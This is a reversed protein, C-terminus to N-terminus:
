KNVYFIKVIGTFMSRDVETSVQVSGGATVFCSISYNSAPSASGLQYTTGANSTNRAIGEIRIIEIDNMTLGSAVTKTTANPLAGFDITKCYVTKGNLKENTAVVQGAVYNVSTDINNIATQMTAVQMELAAVRETLAAVDDYITQIEVGVNTM